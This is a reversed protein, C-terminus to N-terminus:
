RVDRILLTTGEAARGSPDGATAAVEAYGRSPVRVPVRVTATESPGVRGRRDGDDTELEYSLPETSTNVLSLTLTRRAEAGGGYVRVHATIGIGVGGSTTAGLLAWGAAYPRPARLIQLGDREAVVTEGRLGFRVDTEAMVLHGHSDLGSLEGTAPDLEIPRWYAQGYSESRGTAALVDLDANWFAADWWSVASTTPSGVVGLIAAARADEPLARDIWGRGALFEASPDQQSAAVERMVYGTQVACFVLVLSTVAAAVAGRSLRLRALAIAATGVATVIALLTTTDLDPNGFLRGVDYARGDLVKHFTASPSIINAGAPTLTVTAVLWASAAGAVLPPVVLARRELLAAVMGIFILPVLYFLYRDHIAPAFRATFSGVTVLMVVMVAVLVCAFAHRETSLPRVLTAAAWAAALALPIVGIGIAVYALVDGAVDFAGPPLLDGRTVLGYSGFLDDRGLVAVLAAALVTGAALPWHSALATRARDLRSRPAPHDPGRFALEHILVAAIFAPALVALQLRALVALAIAALAILDRRPSPDSVARQMALAAWVFAPYAVVETLITASLALWPVAVSLAAVAYCWLRSLTLERALLYTPIATSAMVLGNLVHVVDFATTTGLLAYAPAALLPELQAWSTFWFDSPTLPLLDEGIAVAQKMYALEDTMVFYQSIRLVYAASAAAAVGVILGLPFAPHVAEARRIFATLAPPLARLSAAAQSM